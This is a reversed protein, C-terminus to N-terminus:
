GVAEECVEDLHTKIEPNIDKLETDGVLILYKLGEMTEKVNFYKTGIRITGSPIYDPDTIIEFDELSEDYRLTFIGKQRKKRQLKLRKEIRKKRKEERIKEKEIRKRREQATEERVLWAKRKYLGGKGEPMFIDFKRQGNNYHGFGGVDEVKRAGFGEIVVTSGMPVIPNHMDVAVTRGVTARKGSSTAHSGRPTNDSAHYTSVYYDGLYVKVTKASSFSTTTLANGFILLLAIIKYLFKLKM